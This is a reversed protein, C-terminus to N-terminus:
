ARDPPEPDFLDLPSGEVSLVTFGSGTGGRDFEFIEV